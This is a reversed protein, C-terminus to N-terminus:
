PVGVAPSQEPDGLVDVDRSRACTDHHDCGPGVCLRVVSWLVKYAIDRHLGAAARLGVRAITIL